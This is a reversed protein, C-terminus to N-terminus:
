DASNHIDSSWSPDVVTVEQETLFILKKNVEGKESGCSMEGSFTRTMKKSTAQHIKDPDKVPKDGYLPLLDARLTYSRANIHGLDILSM